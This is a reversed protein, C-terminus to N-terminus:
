LGIMFKVCLIEKQCLGMLDLCLVYCDWLEVGVLIYNWLVCNREFFNGTFCVFYDGFCFVIQDNKVYLM